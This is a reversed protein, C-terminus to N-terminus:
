EMGLDLVGNLSPNWLNLDVMLTSRGVMLNRHALATVGEGSNAVTVALPRM